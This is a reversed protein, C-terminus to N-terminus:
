APTIILAAISSIFLIIGLVVTLFILLGGWKHLDKTPNELVSKGFFGILLTLFPLVVRVNSLDVPVNITFIIILYIVSLSLMNILMINMGILWGVIRASYPMELDLQFDVEKIFMSRPIHFSLLSKASEYPTRLVIPKELNKIIDKMEKSIQVSHFRPANIVWYYSCDKRLNAPISYINKNKNLYYNFFRKKHKYKHPQEQLPSYYKYEFGIFNLSIIILFLLCVLILLYSLLSLTIFFYILVPLAILGFFLLITLKPFIIKEHTVKEKKKVIRLTKKTEIKLVYNRKIPIEKFDLLITTYHFFNKYDSIEHVIDEDDFKISITLPNFTKYDKIAEFLENYNIYFIKTFLENTYVDLYKKFFNKEKKSEIRFQEVFRMYVKEFKKKLKGRKLLTDKVFIQYLLFYIPILVILIIILSLYTIHFETIKFFPIMISFLFISFLILVFYNKINWSQIFHTKRKKNPYELIDKLNTKKEFLGKLHIKKLRDKIDDSVSIDKRVHFWKKTLFDVKIKSKLNEQFDKWSSSENNEGFIIEFIYYWIIKEYVDKSEIEMLKPRVSMRVDEPTQFFSYPTELLYKEGEKIEKKLEILYTSEEELSNVDDFTIKKSERKIDYNIKEIM